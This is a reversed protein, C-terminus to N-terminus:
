PINQVTLDLIRKIKDSNSKKLVNRLITLPILTGPLLYILGIFSGKIIDHLVNSLNKASDDDSYVKGSKIDAIAVKANDRVMRSVKIGGSVGLVKDIKNIILILNDESFKRM